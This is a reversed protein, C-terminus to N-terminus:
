ALPAHRPLEIILETSEGEESEVRIDGQHRGVVIDHSLSLGLGSGKGAPKTTFFPTFVNGLQASPIGTGNDRIRVEVRERLARLTVDLRPSFREGLMTKKQHLAYCANDVANIFVRRLEPVMVDVEGVEPDYDTQISLEFNPEKIRFGRYALQLSEDLVAQLSAPGRAGSTSWSHMLMGNIIQSARHGHERIKSMNQQLQALVTGVDESDELNTRPQQSDVSGALEHTIEESLEAFNNIFNLPNKLEHAIGATLAGLSALKEQVVLRKQTDRLQQLARGLEENKAQLERTQKEVSQETRWAYTIIGCTTLLPQLLEIVGEDYGEPRNAIGVMGVMEGHVKFPLGLFARLEPHGPPVGIANPHSAPSNTLVPQESTLVTGFLSRLNRFTMGQPADLAYQARLEDTWAINTIAYTRLYPAGEPSHLIEGIFGYESRTEELMLTLLREFLARHNRHTVLDVHVHTLAEMLRRNVDLREELHAREPPISLTHTSSTDQELEVGQVDRHKM